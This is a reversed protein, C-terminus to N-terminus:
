KKAASKAPQKAAADGTPAAATAAAAPAAAEDEAKSGRGIISAIIFDGKKLLSVGQPLNLNSSKIKQGVQMLGTDIDIKDVIAKADKCVVEVRRLVIHLFGGKKLGPSKDQNIFNLRPKVRIDKKKKM